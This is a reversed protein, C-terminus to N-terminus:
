HFPAKVITLFERFKNVVQKIEKRSVKERTNRLKEMLWPASFYGVLDM